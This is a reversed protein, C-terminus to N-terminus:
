YHQIRRMSGTLILCFFLFLYFDAYAHRNIYGVRQCFIKGLCAAYFRLYHRQRRSTHFVAKIKKSRRAAIHPEASRRLLKVKGSLAPKQYAVLGFFRIGNRRFEALIVPQPRSQVNVM